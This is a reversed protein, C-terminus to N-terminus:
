NGLEPPNEVDSQIDKLEGSPEGPEVGNQIDLLKGHEESGVKEILKLAVEIGADPGMSYKAGAPSTYEADQDNGLLGFEKSNDRLSRWLTYALGRISGDFEQEDKRGVIAPKGAAEIAKDEMASVLRPPLGATNIKTFIEFPNPRLSLIYAEKEAYEDLVILSFTYRKGGLTRTITKRGVLNSIGDM